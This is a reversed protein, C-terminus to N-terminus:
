HRDSIEWQRAPEPAKLRGQRIAERRQEDAAWQQAYGSLIGALQDAMAADSARVSGAKLKMVSYAHKM